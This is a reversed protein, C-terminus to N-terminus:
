SIKLFGSGDRYIKGSGAAGATTTIYTPALYLGDNRWSAMTGAGGSHWFEMAKNAISWNINGFNGATHVTGFHFGIAGASYMYVNSQLSVGANDITIRGQPSLWNNNSWGIELKTQDGTVYGPEIAYFHNVGPIRARIGYQSYLNLCNLAVKVSVETEYMVM